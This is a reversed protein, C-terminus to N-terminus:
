RRNKCEIFYKVYFTVFGLPTVATAALQNDFFGKLGFHLVATSQADFWDSATNNQAVVAGVPDQSYTIAKPRIRLVQQGNNPGSSNGFQISKFDQYQALTPYSTAAADDYDTAFCIVPLAPTTTGVASQNNSFVMRLEVERIRYSDFLSTLETVNSNAFNASLVGNVYAATQGLSFSLSFIGSNAPSSPIVPVSGTNYWNVGSTASTGGILALNFSTSVISFTCPKLIDRLWPRSRRTLAVPRRAARRASIKNLWTNITKGALRRRHANYSYMM